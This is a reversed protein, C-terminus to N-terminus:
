FGVLVAATAHVASDSGVPVVLLVACVAELPLARLLLAHFDDNGNGPNGDLTHRQASFINQIRSSPNYIGGPLGKYNPSAQFTTAKDHANRIAFRTDKLRSIQHYRFICM